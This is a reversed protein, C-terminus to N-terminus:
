LYGGDDLTIYADPQFLFNHDGTVDDPDERLEQVGAIGERDVGIDTWELTFGNLESAQSTSKVKCEYTYREAASMEATSLILIGACFFVRAEIRRLTDRGVLLYAAKNRVYEYM